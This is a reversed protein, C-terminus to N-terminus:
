LNRLIQVNIRRKVEKKSIEKYLHTNLIEQKILNDGSLYILSYKVDDNIQISNGLKDVISFNQNMNVKNNPLYKNALMYKIKNKDQIHNFNFVGMFFKDNLYHTELTTKYDGIYHKHIYVTHNKLSKNSLSMLPKGLQKIISKSSNGFEISGKFKIFNNTKNVSTNLKFHIINSLIKLNSYRECFSLYYYYRKSLYKKKRSIFVSRLKKIKKLIKEM